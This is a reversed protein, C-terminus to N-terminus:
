RARARHLGDQIDSIVKSVRRWRFDFPTIGSRGNWTALSRSDELRSNRQKTFRERDAVLARANQSSALGPGDTQIVRVWENVFLRTARDIRDASATPLGDWVDSPNWTAVDDWTSHADEAWRSLRKLSSTVPNRLSKLGASEYREAVLVNYLLAAGNMLLSVLHADRVSIQVDEPADGVARQQWLPKKTNVPEPQSLLYSLYSGRTSRVIREQLWQAEETSLDFGDDVTFPFGPPSAVPIDWDPRPTDEAAYEEHGDKNARSKRSKRLQATSVDVTLIDYRRLASWYVSSPLTSVQEGARGGILGVTVGAESLSTILRKEARHAKTLLEDGAASEAAHQFIWPVFLFYRARTHLTSSGPFLSDAIADRVQRLGLEDVTRPDSFERVLERVRREDDPSTDLWAIFSMSGVAM